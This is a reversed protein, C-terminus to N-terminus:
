AIGWGSGGRLGETAYRLGDVYHNDKDALVPLVEGTHPDIKFRYGALEIAARRCRPHVVIDYSQLRQVGRDVSGPGKKAPRMNEFGHRQMYSITQPDSSDAKIPWFRAEPVGRADRLEAPLSKYAARNLERLEKDSVGGFLFPLHDVECGVMYAEHTVYLRREEERTFCRVLVSPDVTFGWDAGLRIIDDDTEVPPEGIEWNKFVIADSRQRYQGEWVHAYTDPDRQADYAREAELEPPFWPNDSWSVDGVIAGEPIEDGRLLQDVPDTPETPNWSFWLESGPARITPRLLKLSEASLQQAEEVWAVTYGELSKISQATHDQMGEFSIRGGGPTEIHSRLVRFYSGANYAAIKDELLRKVSQDLNRQIKQVYITRLEKKTLARKILLGAFFHSKGSGRGGHAGKYRSRQLLPALARPTELRLTAM